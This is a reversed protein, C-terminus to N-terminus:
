GSNARQIIGKKPEVKQEGKAEQQSEFKVEVESKDEVDL